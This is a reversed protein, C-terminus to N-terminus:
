SDFVIVICIKIIFTKNINLTGHDKIIGYVNFGSDDQLISKESLLKQKLYACWLGQKDSPCLGFM